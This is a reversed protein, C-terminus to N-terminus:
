LESIGDGILKVGLILLLVAMIVANNATMWDKIGDLLKHSRDGMVLALVVPTGVGVTAVLVFVGYAVVQQSTAIGTGAIAAAGGVAILMNKPNLGALLAGAGSAKVPTFTDLASMWKPMTAETQGSPRGRWERVGVLLLLVGLALKIISVWTAPEGSDSAGAGSSVTLVIAGVIALGVVWGAVFAPGNARGRRSVLMLVVAVIPLPSIAVGVAAPLMQGIAEGMPLSDARWPHGRM